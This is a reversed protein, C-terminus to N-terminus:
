DVKMKQMLSSKRVVCTLHSGSRGRVWVEGTSFCRYYEFNGENDRDARMENQWVAYEAESITGTPTLKDGQNHQLILNSISM